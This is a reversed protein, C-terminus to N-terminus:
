ADVSHLWVSRWRGTARFGLKRYVAGAAPTGWYLIPQKQEAMLEACLASCVAQSFGRGRMAPPTYVGGIMALRSTEANTLATAVIKGAQEAVWLRTDRLPREVAAPSRRMHEADTYFDILPPLDALTGRRIVTGEPASVAHFDAPRLVMVEEIEISEARYRQIYPLFSDIGGPNDQLRNAGAPHHDLIAGLAAWDTEGTGYVSWGTMYRNLVARITTVGTQEVVDGWFECIPHTFGLKELNGLMYLNWQPANALFRVTLAQDAPTLPRLM